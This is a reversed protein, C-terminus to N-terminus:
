KKKVKQGMKGMRGIKVILDFHTKSVPMVSLRSQKILLLDKLKPTKKIQELTVPLEFKEVPTIDIQMWEGPMEPDPDAYAERAVKAIGVVAKGENSHYILALDGVCAEKLFNRAQFNRVGNWNTRGDRVLQDYSYVSPESKLLWYHPM